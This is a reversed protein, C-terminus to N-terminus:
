QIHSYTLWPIDYRIQKPTPNVVIEDNYLRQLGGFQVGEAVDSVFFLDNSRIPFRATDGFGIQIVDALEMYRNSVVAPAVPTIIQAIVANFTKRFGEDRTIQPNKVTNLGAFEYGAKKTCYEMLSETFSAKHENYEENSKGKLEAYEKTLQIGAEVIQNATDDLLKAYQFQSFTKM